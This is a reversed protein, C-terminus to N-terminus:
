CGCCCCSCRSRGPKVSCGKCSPRSRAGPHAGTLFCPLLVPLARLWLRYPAHTVHGALKPMPQVGHSCKCEDAAPLSTICCTRQLQGNGFSCSISALIGWGVKMQQLAEQLRGREAVLQQNECLLVKNEQAAKGAMDSIHSLTAQLRAIVGELAALKSSGEAAARQNALLMTVQNQLGTIQLPVCMIRLVCM